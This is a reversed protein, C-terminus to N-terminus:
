MVEKYAKPNQCWGKIKMAQVMGMVIAGLAPIGVCGALFLLRDGMPNVSTGLQLLYSTGNVRM